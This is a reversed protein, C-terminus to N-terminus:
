GIHMGHQSIVSPSEGQKTEYAPNLLEIINRNTRTYSLMIVYSKRQFVGTGNM